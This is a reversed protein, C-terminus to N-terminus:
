RIKRASKPIPNRYRGIQRAQSELTPLNLLEALEIVDDRLGRNLRVEEATVLSPFRRALDPRAQQVATIADRHSREFQRGKSARKQNRSRKGDLARSGRQSDHKKKSDRLCTESCHTRRRGIVFLRGHENEHRTGPCRGLRVARALVSDIWEGSGGAGFVLGVLVVFVTRTTLEDLLGDLAVEMTATDQEDPYCRKLSELLAADHRILVRRRLAAALSNADVSVTGVSAPLEGGDDVLLPM